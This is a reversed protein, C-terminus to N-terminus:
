PDIWGTPLRGFDDRGSGYQLCFLHDTRLSDLGPNRSVTVPETVVRDHNIKLHWSLWYSASAGYKYRHLFLKLCIEHMKVCKSFSLTKRVFCALQQRLTTNWREVHATEGTEKGVPNHQENPIVAQYAKWYDTFVIAKKYAFPIRNWLIQCTEESREGCAYAVVERTERSLAIWAWIKNDKEFVYSWLEDMELM